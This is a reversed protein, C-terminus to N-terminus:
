YNRYIAVEEGTEINYFHEIWCEIKEPEQIIKEIKYDYLQFEKFIEISNGNIMTIDIDYHRYRGGYAMLVLWCSVTYAESPNEKNFVVKEAMAEFLTMQESPMYHNPDGGNEILFKMISAAVSPTEVYMAEWLVNWDDVITNPDFGFELLLKLADIIYNSHLDEYKYEEIEPNFLIDCDVDCDMTFEIALDALEEKSFKRLSLLRKIEDLNSPTKEFTEKIQKILEM